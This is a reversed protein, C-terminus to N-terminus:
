ETNQPSVQQARRLLDRAELVQIRAISLRRGLMRDSVGGTFFWVAAQITDTPTRETEVIRFLAALTPDNHDVTLRTQSTPNGKHFDLAYGHFTYRNAQGPALQIAAVDQISTRSVTRGTLGVLGVPSADEDDTTLITGAIGTVRVTENSRNAISLMVLDGSTAGLGTGSVALVGESAGAALDVETVPPDDGQAVLPIAAALVCAWLFASLRNM